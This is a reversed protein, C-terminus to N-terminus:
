VKFQSNIKACALDVRQPWAQVRRELVALALQQLVLVDLRVRVAKIAHQRVPLLALQHQARAVHVRHLAAPGAACRSAAFEVRRRGDAVTLEKKVNNIVHFFCNNSGNLILKLKLIRTKSIFILGM